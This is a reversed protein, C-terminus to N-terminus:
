VRESEESYRIGAQARAADMWGLVRLSEEYGIVEGEAGAQRSFVKEAIVDAQYWIGWGREVPKKIVEETEIGDKDLHEAGYWQVRLEQPRIPPFPVAISAKTGEIRVSPASKNAQLRQYFAPKSSGPLTMSTTVIAVAEQVATESNQKSLVVTTIDDVEGAVGPVNMTSAHAVKTLAKSPIGNLGLDAWTLAYVGQDLLSGAGAGKDLFRSSHSLDDSVIPFSFDAYVRRVEGIKPLLVEQLYRTAPLYRTWMAEMLVVGQKRALDSLVKFQVANMTAPKEVLVNRKAKLAAMTHEYHLPHPTSIYVIDFDGEALMTKWDHYVKITEPDPVKQETLWSQAREDTGTTSVAVLEHKIAESADRPLLIDPVFVGAISSLSLAAWRCITQKTAM